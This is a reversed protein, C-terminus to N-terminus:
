RIAKLPRKLLGTTLSKDSLKLKDKTYWVVYGIILGFM